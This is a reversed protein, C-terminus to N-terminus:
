SVYDKFFNNNKIKKKYFNENKNITGKKMTKKNEKHSFFDNM